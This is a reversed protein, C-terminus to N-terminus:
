HLKNRFAEEEQRDIRSQMIWFSVGSTLSLALTIAGLIKASLKLRKLM